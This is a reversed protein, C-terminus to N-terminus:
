SVMALHEAALHMAIFHTMMTEASTVKRAHSQREAQSGYFSTVSPSSSQSLRDVHRLGQVHRRVDHFGGHTLM